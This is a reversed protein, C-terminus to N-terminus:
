SRREWLINNERLKSVEQTVIAIVKKVEEQTTYRGLSFRLSSFALSPEVGMALLVHSPEVSASNCASGNSVALQSGLATLLNVGDVYPFSVNVTNPLRQESTSNSVSLDIALLGEELRNRLTKLRTTEDGLNQYALEIAKAFGVILPTNITGGRQGKQQGGGQIFSPLADYNDNEKCYVLGIGKPGYVKHGSFCAFDVQRLVDTLDVKGLAQTTDSFLLSGNAHVLEAIEELPQIAGTENNAYIMSVLITDPRLARMLQKTSVLGKADVGLYTVEFGDEELFACTDLVAKHEAQTTIIHRGKSRLKRAVGKLVMNISETAGSTYILSNTSIDLAKAISMTAEEVASKALWGYPHHSSSPNGFDEQFYPLMADVVEKVCPTTANYDFYLQSVM